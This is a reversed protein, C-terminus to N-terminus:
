LVAGLKDLVKQAADWTDLNEQGSPDGTGAKWTQRALYDGFGIVPGEHEEPEHPHRRRTTGRAGAAIGRVAMRFRAVSIRQEDLEDRLQVYAALAHRYELESIAETWIVGKPSMPWTSVIRRVIDATEAETM